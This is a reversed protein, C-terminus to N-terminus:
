APISGLRAAKIARCFQNPYNSNSESMEVKFRVVKTWKCIRAKGIRYPTCLKMDHVLRSAV